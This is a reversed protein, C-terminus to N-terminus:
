GDVVELWVPLHDWAVVLGPEWVFEGADNVTVHCGVWHM